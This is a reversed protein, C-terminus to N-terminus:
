KSAAASTSDAMATNRRPGPGCIGAKAGGGTEPPGGACRAADHGGAGSEGRPPELGAGCTRHAGAGVSHEAEWSSSGCAMTAVAVGGHSARQLAM